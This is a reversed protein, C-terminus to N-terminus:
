LDRRVVLIPIVFARRDRYIGVIEGRIVKEIRGSMPIVVQLKARGNSINNETIKAIPSTVLPDSASLLQCNVTIEDWFIPGGSPRESLNFEFMADESSESNTLVGRNPSVHILSMGEILVPLNFSEGSSGPVVLKLFGREDQTSDGEAVSVTFRRCRVTEFKELECTPEHRAFVDGAPVVKIRPFSDTNIEAKELSGPGILSATFVLNEGRSVSDGTFSLVGPTAWYGPIAGSITITSNVPLAFPGSFVCRATQTVFGHSRGRHDLFGEIIGIGGAALPSPSCRISLCGCSIKEVSIAVESSTRNNLELQFKKPKADSLVGLYQNPLNIQGDGLIVVAPKQQDEKPTNTRQSRVSWRFLHTVSLWSEPALGITLAM